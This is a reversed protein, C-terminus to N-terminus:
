QCRRLRAISKLKLSHAVEADIGVRNRPSQDEIARHRQFILPRLFLFLTSGRVWRVANLLDLHSEPGAPRYPGRGTLHCVTSKGAVPNM